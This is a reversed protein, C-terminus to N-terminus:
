QKRKSVTIKLGGFTKKFDFSSPSSGFIQRCNIMQDHVNWPRSRSRPASCFIGIVQQVEEAYDDFDISLSVSRIRHYECYVPNTYM